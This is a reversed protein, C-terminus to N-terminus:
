IYRGRLASVNSEGGYKPQDLRDDAGIGFFDPLLDPYM